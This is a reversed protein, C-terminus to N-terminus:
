SSENEVKGEVERVYDRTLDIAKNREESDEDKNKMWNYIYVLTWFTIMSGIFLLLILQTLSSYIIFLYGFILLITITGMGFMALIINKM